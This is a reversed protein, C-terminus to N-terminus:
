SKFCIERGLTEPKLMSDKLFIETLYDLLRLIRIDGCSEIRIIAIEEPPRLDNIHSRECDDLIFMNFNHDLLDEKDAYELIESRCVSLFGYAERWLELDDRIAELDALNSIHIMEMGGKM